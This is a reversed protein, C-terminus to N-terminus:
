DILDEQKLLELLKVLETDANSDLRYDYTVWKLQDKPGVQLLGSWKDVFFVSTRQTKTAGLVECYSKFPRFDQTYATISIEEKLERILAQEYSENVELHGGPPSFNKEGNLRIAAITRDRLIVGHSRESAFARADTTSCSSSLKDIRQKRM